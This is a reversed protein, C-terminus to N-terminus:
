ADQGGEGTGGTEVPVAVAIDGTASVSAVEDAVYVLEECSSCRPCYLDVSEPELPHHHQEPETGAGMWGCEQCVMEHGAAAAQALWLQARLTNHADFAEASFYHPPIAWVNNLPNRGLGLPDGNLGEQCITGVFRCKFTFGNPGRFQRTTRMVLDISCGINDALVFKGHTHYDICESFIMKAPRPDRRSSPAFHDRTWTHADARLLRLLTRAQAEQAKSLGRFQDPYHIPKSM